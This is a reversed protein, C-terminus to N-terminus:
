IKYLANSVFVFNSFLSFSFFVICVQWFGLVYWTAVSDDLECRLETERLHFTETNVHGEVRFPQATICIIAISMAISVLAGIRILILWSSVIREKLKKAQDFVM